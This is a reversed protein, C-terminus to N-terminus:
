LGATKNVHTGAAPNVQYTLIEGPKTIEVIRYGRYATGWNGGLHSDYFYFKGYKTMVGDQDHDHGHFIARLNDQRGFMKVVRKCDIGNKTWKRPTIHMFVFCNRYARAQELANELWEVPPCAYEGMENSTDLVIFFNGNASFSYNLEHGWTQLWTTADCKDHNGRSVHYPMLLQQYKTKVQPLFAVDDHYLDGNFLSFNLPQKEHESNLWAMMEDHYQEYPTNPQGYHGDSAIAFRFDIGPQLKSHYKELSLGTLPQLGALLSISSISTKLFHRRNM